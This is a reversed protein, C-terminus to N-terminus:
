PGSGVQRKWRGVARWLLRKVASESRKMQNAVEAWDLRQYFHLRIVQQDDDSLRGLAAERLEVEEHGMAEQIPTPNNGALAVAGGSAHPLPVERRVDRKQRRANRWADLVGHDALTKLWSRLQRENGAQVGTVHQWINLLCEQVVDSADGHGVPRNGGRRAAFEKLQPRIETLFRDIADRNGTLAQQFLEWLLDDGAGELAVENM